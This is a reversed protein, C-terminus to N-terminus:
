PRELDPLITHRDRDRAGFRTGEERHEPQVGTRHHGGVRQDFQKPAIIWRASRGLGQLGM